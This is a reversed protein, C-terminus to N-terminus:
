GNQDKGSDGSVAPTEYGKGRKEWKVNPDRYGARAYFTDLHTVITAATRPKLLQMGFQKMGHTWFEKDHILPYWSQHYPSFRFEDSVSSPGGLFVTTNTSLWSFHSNPFNMLGFGPYIKTPDFSNYQRLMRTIGGTNDLQWAYGLECFKDDEFYPESRCIHPFEPTGVLVCNMAHMLEHMFTEAALWRLAMKEAVLVDNRLFPLLLQLSIQIAVKDAGTYPGEGRIFEPITVAYYNSHLKTREIPDLRGDRISFQLKEVFKSILFDKTDRAEQDDIMHAPRRHFSRLPGEDRQEKENRTDLHLPIPKYEGCLYSDM